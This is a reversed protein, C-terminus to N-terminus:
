FGDFPAYGAVDGNAKLLVVWDGRAVMPLYRGEQRTVQFQALLETLETARSPYRKFLEDLPLAQSWVLERSESYPRWLSPRQGIDYGKLALDLSSLREEASSSARTGLFLPGTLSLERYEPRASALEELRVDNAAVVRFRGPEHVVAVPRAIYLTHLGYVLASLQLLGIVTLDRVLERRPKLTNFVVLTLLPGMVVDVGLILLFLHQGGAIKGIVGPYWFHLPVLAVCAAVACSLLFHIAAARLRQKWSSSITMPPM